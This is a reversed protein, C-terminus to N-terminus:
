PKMSERLKRALKKDLAANFRDMDEDRIILGITDRRSSHKIKNTASAVGFPIKNTRATNQLSKGEVLQMGSPVVEIDLNVDPNRDIITM